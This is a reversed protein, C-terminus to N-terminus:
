SPLGYLPCKWMKPFKKAGLPNISLIHPWRSEQDLIFETSLLFFEEIIICIIESVDSISKGFGTLQVPISPYSRSVGLDTIFLLPMELNLKKWHTWKDHLIIIILLISFNLVRSNAHWIKRIGLFLSTEITMLKTLFNLSGSYFQTTLEAILNTSILFFALSIKSIKKNVNERRCLLEYSFYFLRHYVVPWDCWTMAFICLM